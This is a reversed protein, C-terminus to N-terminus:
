NHIRLQQRFCASVHQHGPNGAGVLDVLALELKHICFQSPHLLISLINLKIGMKHCKFCMHLDRQDEVMTTILGHLPPMLLASSPINEVEEIGWMALLIQWPIRLSGLNSLVWTRKNHMCLLPLTTLLPGGAGDLGVLLQHEWRLHVAVQPCNSLRGSCLRGDVQPLRALGLRGRQLPELWPCLLPLGVPSTGLALSVGLPVTPYRPPCPPPEPPRPPELRPPRPGVM